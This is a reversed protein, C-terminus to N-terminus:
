KVPKLQYHDALPTAAEREARLMDPLTAYIAHVLNEGDARVITRAAAGVGGFLILKPGGSWPPSYGAIPLQIYRWAYFRVQTRNWAMALVHYAQMLMPTRYRALNIGGSLSAASFAGVSQGNISLTYRKATLGAVQLHEQDLERYLHGAHIIAETTPNIFHFKPQPAQWGNEPPFQPWVAHLSLMPFPLSGDLQTWRISGDATQLNTVKTNDAVKVNGGSIAVKTVMAPANWRKLLAEAMLLQGAASPHIRGPIVQSALQPETAQLKKIVALMPANFDVYFLHDKAALQKDFEDYRQLVGNYGGAFRHKINVFPTPGFPSPGIIVIRVGPLHAQLADVLHEYGKKYTDFIKADFPRYSADNMGLMITVVTPKFPYVDRKLRVEISGAWGGTVRDAAVGSDVFDVKLKPFRTILYTEVAVAYFRQETISDGYFCVRDGNRLFFHSPAAALAKAFLLALLLSASFWRTFTM